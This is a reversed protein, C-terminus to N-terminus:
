RMEARERPTLGGWLGHEERNDLAFELCEIRVGCDACIKKALEVREREGTVGRRKRETIEPPYFLGTDMGACAAQEQWM